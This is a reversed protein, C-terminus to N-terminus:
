DENWLDDLVSGGEVVLCHGIGNLVPTEWTVIGSGLFILM